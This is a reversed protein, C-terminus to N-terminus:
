NNLDTLIVYMQMFMESFKNAIILSVTSTLTPIIVTFQTKVIIFKNHICYYKQNQVDFCM